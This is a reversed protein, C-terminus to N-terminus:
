PDKAFEGPSSASDIRVVGYHRVGLDRLKQGLRCSKRVNECVEESRFCLGHSLRRGGAALGPAVISGILWGV